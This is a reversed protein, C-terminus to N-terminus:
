AFDELEKTLVRLRTIQTQVPEFKSYDWFAQLVLNPNINMTNGAALRLKVWGSDASSAADLLQMLPAIDVTSIGKKTKKEVLIESQACFRRFAEELGGEDIAAGFFTIRFDAWTIEKPDTGVPAARTIRIDPTLCANLKKAVEEM